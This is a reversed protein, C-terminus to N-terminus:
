WPQIIQIHPNHGNGLEKPPMKGFIFVKVWGTMSMTAVGMAMLIISAKGVM